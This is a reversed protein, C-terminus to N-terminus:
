ATARAVAAVAWHRRQTLTPEDGFAALARRLVPVISPGPPYMLALYLKGALRVALRGAETMDDGHKWVRALRIAASIFGQGRATREDIALDSSPEGWREGTNRNKKKRAKKKSTAM